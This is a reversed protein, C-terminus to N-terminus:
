CRARRDRLHRDGATARRASRATTRTPARGTPTSRARTSTRYEGDEFVVGGIRQEGDRHTIISLVFGADDDFNITLWRYWWPAQWFRPGWSHDRLGFGDVEWEEDGVAIM